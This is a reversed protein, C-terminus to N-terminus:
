NEWFMFPEEDTKNKWEDKVGFKELLEPVYRM